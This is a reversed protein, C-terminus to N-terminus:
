INNTTKKEFDLYQSAHMNIKTDLISETKQHSTKRLMVVVKPVDLRICCVIHVCAFVVMLWKRVWRIVTKGNCNGKINRALARHMEVHRYCTESPHCWCLFPVDLPLGDYLNAYSRAFKERKWERGRQRDKMLKKLKPINSNGSRTNSNRRGNLAFCRSEICSLLSIFYVLKVSHLIYLFFVCVLITHFNTHHKAASVRFFVKGEM